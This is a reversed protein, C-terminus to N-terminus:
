QIPTMNQEVPIRTMNNPAAEIYTTGTWEAGSTLSMGGAGIPINEGYQANAKMANVAAVPDVTNTIKSEEIKNASKAKKATSLNLMNSYATRTLGTVTEIQIDLQAIQPLLQMKKQNKWQHLIQNKTNPYTVQVDTIIAWDILLMGGIQVTIRDLDKEKGISMNFFDTLAKAGNTIGQGIKGAISAGSVSKGDQRNALATAFSPGPTSTYMSATSMEPLVARGFVELAEQFNINSEDDVDDFVPISLKISLPKPNMWIKTADLSYSTSSGGEGLIAHIIKNSPIKTPAAWEGGIAYSIKDPLQCRVFIPTSNQKQNRKIIGASNQFYFTVTHFQKLRSNSHYKNTLDLDYYQTDFKNDKERVWNPGSLKLTEANSTITGKKLLQGNAAQTNLGKDKDVFNEIPKSYAM